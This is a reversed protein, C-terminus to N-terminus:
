KEGRIEALAQKACDSWDGRDFFGKACKELAEIAIKLKPYVDQNNNATKFYEMDQTLKTVLKMLRENDEKLKANKYMLSDIQEAIASRM